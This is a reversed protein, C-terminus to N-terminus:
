ELLPVQVLEQHGGCASPVVGMCLMLVSRQVQVSTCAAAAAALLATVGARLRDSM